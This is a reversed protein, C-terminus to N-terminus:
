AEIKGFGNESSKYPSLGTKTSFQPSVEVNLM